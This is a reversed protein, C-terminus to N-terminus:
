MGFAADLDPNHRLDTVAPPPPPAAPPAAFMADLDPNHRPDTPIVPPPPVPAPEGLAAHLRALLQQEKASVQGAASAIRDALALLERRDDPAFDKVAAIVDEENLTLKSAEEVTVDIFRLAVADAAFAQGLHNRLVTREANAVRGDAKAVLIGFRCVARLRAVSPPPEAASQAYGEGGTGRESASLPHEVQAPKAVQQSPPPSVDTKFVEEGSRLPPRPTFAGSPLEAHLVEETLGPVKQFFLTNWFSVDNAITTLADIKAIAADLTIAHRTRDDDAAQDLAALEAARRRFEVGEPCGGADFRAKADATVKRVATRVEAAKASGLGTLTDLQNLRVDPITQWGAAQLKDVTAPGIGPQTLLASVPVTRLHRTFLEDALASV